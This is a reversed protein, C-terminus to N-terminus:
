FDITRPRAITFQSLKEELLEKPKKILDLFDPMWDEKQFSHDLHNKPSAIEYNQANYYLNAGGREDYLFLTPEIACTSQKLQKLDNKSAIVLDVEKFITNEILDEFHAINCAADLFFCIKAGREKALQIGKIPLYGWLLSNADLLLVDLSNFSSSEMDRADFDLSAGLYSCTTQVKKSDLLSLVQSTPTHDRVLSSKLDARSLANQYFDGASDSGIKGMMECLSGGLALELMVKVLLGGLSFYPTISAKAILQEQFFPEMLQNEGVSLYSEECFSSSIHLKKEIYPFALALFNPKEKGFLM